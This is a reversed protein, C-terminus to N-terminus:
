NLTIGTDINLLSDPIKVSALQMSQAVPWIFSANLIKSNKTYSKDPYFNFICSGGKIRDIINRVQAAPVAPCGFSRGMMIGSVARDRGVYNSGHMVIARNRVNDNFGKEIGDLRMSYGNDGIYTEATLLFGLSSKYSDERNSFSTAYDNGSKRGHSVYTNFLMKHANLDLVYLRKKSSSQSYDCITLLGPKQIANQSLLYEYGKCADFFATRSLGAASLNLDTYLSDIWYNIEPSNDTGTLVAEHKVDTTKSDSHPKTAAIISTFVCICVSSILLLRKM